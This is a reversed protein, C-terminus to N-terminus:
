PGMVCKIGQWWPALESRPCMWVRVDYGYGPYWRNPYCQRESHWPASDLKALGAFEDFHPAIAHEARHSGFLVLAVWDADQPTHLQLKELDLAASKDPRPRGTLPAMLYDRFKQLQGQDLWYSLWAGKTEAFLCKGSQAKIFMDYRLKSGPYQKNASTWTKPELAEYARCIEASWSNEEQKGPDNAKTEFAKWTAQVFRDKM